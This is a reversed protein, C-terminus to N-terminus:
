SWTKRLGSKIQRWQLRRILPQGIKELLIFRVGDGDAKKDLRAADVLTDIDIALEHPVHPLRLRSLSKEIDRTLGPKAIELSESLTAALVMGLSVAEGHSLQGYETLREYAHGLTHGFNLIARRGHDREDETVFAAKIECCARVLEGVHQSDPSLLDEAHTDIWHLREADGIFGHKVAEALGCRREREPLTRLVEQSSIVAAPQWFAGILNKGSPHNVGTKGGVASDVQALLSTPIQIFPIGRHLIAAVFGAIDGIVGGGLAIIYDARTVGHALARNIVMQVISLSKSREGADLTLLDPKAGLANLTDVIDKGYLPGVNSDTVVLVRADKKLSPHGQLIEQLVLGPLHPVFHIPYSRNGLSVTLTEM